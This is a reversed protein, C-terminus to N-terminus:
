KKLLIIHAMRGDTGNTGDRPWGAGAWLLGVVAVRLFGIFDGFDLEIVGSRPLFDESIEFGFTNGRPGFAWEM